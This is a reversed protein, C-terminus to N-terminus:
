MMLVTFPQSAATEKFYTTGVQSEYAQLYTNTKHEKAQKIEQFFDRGMQRMADPIDMTLYVDLVKGERDYNYHVATRIRVRQGQRQPAQGLWPAVHTGELYGHAGCIPGECVFTDMNYRRNTFAMRLPNIIHTLIEQKGTAMGIGYLPGYLISQESWLSLDSGDQEWDTQLSHRFLEESRETDGQTVWKSEPAPIGTMTRPPWLKGEPLGPAPLLQYGAQVMIAYTDVICGNWQIRGNSVHYFDLDVTHIHRHDAPPPIGYFDKEFNAQAYTIGTVYKESGAVIFWTGTAFRSKPFAVNWRLHEGSYWAPIGHYTANPASFAYTVDWAFFQAMKESWTPWDHWNAQKCILADMALVLQKAAPQYDNPASSPLRAGVLPFFAVFYLLVVM